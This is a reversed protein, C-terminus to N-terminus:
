QERPLPQGLKPEELKAAGPEGGRVEGTDLNVGHETLVRRAIAQQESDLLGLASRIADRVHHARQQYVHNVTAAPITIM